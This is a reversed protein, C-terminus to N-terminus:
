DRAPVIGELAVIFSVALYPQMNNHPQDGGVSSIASLAMLTNPTDRYLDNRRGHALVNDTPVETTAAQDSANLEHNHSPLQNTTLTENEVGGRVGVTRPSLGPGSGTGIAVRGRLDPLAFTTRGDGGYTTGILQYLKPHQSIAHLSGNCFAWGRPAFNGCFMRIEGLIPTGIKSKSM